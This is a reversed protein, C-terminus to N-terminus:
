PSQAMLELVRHHKLATSKRLPLYTPHEAAEAEVGNLTARSFGILHFRVYARQGAGRGIM